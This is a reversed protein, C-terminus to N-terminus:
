NRLVTSRISYLQFPELSLDKPASGARADQNLEPTTAAFTRINPRSMRSTGPLSPSEDPAQKACCPADECPMPLSVPSPVISPLFPEDNEPCCSHDDGRSVPAQPAAPTHSQTMAVGPVSSWSLPALLLAAILKKVM